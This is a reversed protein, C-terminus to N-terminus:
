LKPKGTQWFELTETTKEKKNYLEIIIYPKVQASKVNWAQKISVQKPYNKEVYSKVSFPVRELDAIPTKTELWKVSDTQEFSVENKGAQDTYFATWDGNEKSWSVDKARPYKLKLAEVYEMPVEEKAVIQPTEEEEEIDTQKSAKKKDPKTKEQEAQEPKPQERVPINKPKGTQWFELTETIREKKDYLEVIVYPKVKSSKVTWAQKISSQKTYNKEVYSKISFPVKELDAIPTKTELWQISDSANKEFSVENKGAQDTYFAAWEDEYEGWSVEKARPYKLKFAAIYEAPVEDEDTIRYTKVDEAPKAKDVKSRDPRTNERAKELEVSNEAIKQLEEETHFPDDVKLFDGDRTFWVTAHAAQGVGSRQIKIRYLNGEDEFNEDETYLIEKYVYDPYRLSIWRLLFTPLENESLKIPSDDVHSDKETEKKAKSEQKARKKDSVTKEDSVAATEIPEDPEVISVIIGAKDLSIVTELKKKVNQPEYVGIIFTIEKNNETKRRYSNLTYKQFYANLSKVCTTPLTNPDLEETTSLWIGDNQFVAETPINKSVCEAVFNGEALRWVIDTASAFRKKFAKAVEAPINEQSVITSDVPKVTKGKQAFSSSLFIGVFFSMVVFIKCSSKM